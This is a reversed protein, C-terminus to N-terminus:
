VSRLRGWAFDAAKEVVVFEAEGKIPFCGCSGDRAFGRFVRSPPPRRGMKRGVGTFSAALFVSASVFATQGWTFYADKDLGGKRRDEKFPPSSVSKEGLIFYVGWPTKVKPQLPGELFGLDKKVRFDGVNWGPSIIVGKFPFFSAYLFLVFFQRPFKKEFVCSLGCLRFM